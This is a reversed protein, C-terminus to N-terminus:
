VHEGSHEETRKTALKVNFRELQRSRNDVFKLAYQVYLLTKNDLIKIGAHSLRSVVDLHICTHITSRNKNVEVVYYM